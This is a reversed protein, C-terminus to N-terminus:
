QSAIVTVTKLTSLFGFKKPSCPFHLFQSVNLKISGIHEVWMFFKFKFLFNM